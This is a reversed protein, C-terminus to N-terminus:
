LVLIGKADMVIEKKPEKIAAIEEKSKKADEAYHKLKDVPTITMKATGDIVVEKGVLDVPVFFAHDKMKIMMKGNGAEMKLWCGMEKCVEVVKGKLKVDTGQTSIVKAAVANIDVVDETTTKAGFMMGKKAPGEPPQAMVLLSTFVVVLLVGIKKM